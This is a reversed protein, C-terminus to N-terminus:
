GRGGEREYFSEIIGVTKRADLKGEVVRRAAGALKKRLEADDTMRLVMEVFGDEDGPDVMLVEQEHRFLEAIGDLRSAVVPVGCAMAESVTMPLGEYDSTVVLVDVCRYLTVRDEVFPVFRLRSKLDLNEAENELEGRLPGNGFLVFTVDDREKAVRAAMRLFLSFNKQAALRGIGAVILGEEPLGVAKRAAGNTMQDAGRLAELDIGNYLTTVRKEDIREREILVKRTSESATFIHESLRGTLADVWLCFPNGTRWADNCQDHHFIQRVGCAAAIPKGIWNAGFLHFHAIDYRRHRVLRALNWVYAPPWKKASLSHVKVGLREFAEWFVGRGHMAAVEIEYKRRNAFRVMGLLATQAGGQDLHDIVHLVRKM